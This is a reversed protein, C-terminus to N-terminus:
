GPTPGLVYIVPVFRGLFQHVSWQLSAAATAYANPGYQDIIRDATRRLRALRLLDRSVSGEREELHERWQTGVVHRACVQLGADTVARELNDEVLNAVVNGLPEHITATEVADVPGNLLNTFLVVHGTRRLVRSMEAFAGALDPLVEVVDRCWVTDVSATAESLQEAVGRRISIRKELGVARVAKRARDVHWPVPDLGVGTAEYRRVLEILHRADRCGVDLIRQGRGLYPHALDYLQDPGPPDLSADLGDFLRWFTENYIEDMTVAALMGSGSPWTSGTREHERASTDIRGM